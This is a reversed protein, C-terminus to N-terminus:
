GLESIIDKLFEPFIHRLVLKFGEVYLILIEYVGTKHPEVALTKMLEVIYNKINRKRIDQFDQISLM